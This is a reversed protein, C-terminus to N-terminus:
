GPLITVEYAQVRAPDFVVELERIVGDDVVFEIVRVVTGHPACV